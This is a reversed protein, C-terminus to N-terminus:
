YIPSLKNDIVQQQIDRIMERNIISRLIQLMFRNGKQVAIVAETNEKAQTLVESPLSVVKFTSPSASFDDSNWVTADIQGKKLAATLTMYSIEILEVEKGRCAEKTLLVQDISSPDIGVRMGDEIRTKSHDRLLVAHQGVYSESGLGSVEDV